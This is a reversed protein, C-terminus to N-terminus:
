FEVKLTHGQYTVDRVTSEPLIEIHFDRKETGASSTGSPGPEIILLKEQDEWTFHTLAYEGSLYDLSIGDDEYLTFDGDAGQYIRIIM